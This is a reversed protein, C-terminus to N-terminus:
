NSSRSLQAVTKPRGRAYLELNRQRLTKRQIAGIIPST